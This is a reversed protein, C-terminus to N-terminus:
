SSSWWLRRGGDVKAGGGPGTWALLIMWHALAATLRVAAATSPAHLPQPGASVYTVDSAPWPPPRLRARTLSVPFSSVGAQRAVASSRGGGRARRGNADRRAVPTADARHPQAPASTSWARACAGLSRTQEAKCDWGMM